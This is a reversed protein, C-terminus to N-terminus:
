QPSHHATVVCQINSQVSQSGSWALCCSLLTQPCGWYKFSTLAWHATERERRVQKDITKADTQWEGEQMSQCVQFQHVTFIDDQDLNSFLSLGKKPTTQGKSRKHQMSSITNTCQVYRTVPVSTKGNGFCSTYVCM